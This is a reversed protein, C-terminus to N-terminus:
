DPRAYSVVSATGSYISHKAWGGDRYSWLGTSTHVFDPLCYPRNRTVQFRAVTADKGTAEAAAIAEAATAYEYFEQNVQYVQM